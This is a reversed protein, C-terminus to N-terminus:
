VRVIISISISSCIQSFFLSLLFEGEMPKNSFGLNGPHVIKDVALIPKATYDHKHTTLQSLPGDGILKHNRPLILDPKKIGPWAGYSM